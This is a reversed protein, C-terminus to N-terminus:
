RLIFTRNKYVFISHSLYLKLAHVLTRREVDKGIQVLHNISSLDSVPIVEQAIIPGLDLLENAFHATAGIIKVGKHWAQHYPKAGTFSPLFGHHINIVKNKWRGTFEPSLIQMFRAMTVLNIEHDILLQQIREEAATKGLKYDIHHFPIKFQETVGRNHPHNSIVLPIECDIEGDQHKLLLEWLCHNTKSVLIAVRENRNTDHLEWSMKFRDATIRFAKEFSERDFPNPTEFLTKLMFIGIDSATHQILDLVNADNKAMMSTVAAIIGKADPCSTKLVYKSMAM